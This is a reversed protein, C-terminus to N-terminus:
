PAAQPAGSQAATPFSSDQLQKSVKKRLKAESTLPVAAKIGQDLACGIMPLVVATVSAMLAWRTKRRGLLRQCYNM